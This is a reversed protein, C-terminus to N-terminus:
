ISDLWRKMLKMLEVEAKGAIVFRFTVWSFLGKIVTIAQTDSFESILRPMKM